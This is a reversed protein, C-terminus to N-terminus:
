NVVGGRGYKRVLRGIFTAGVKEGDHMDLTEVKVDWARAVIKAAADQVACGAIQKLDFNTSDKVLEKRLNSVTDTTSNRVKQFGLAVVHNCHFNLNTYQIGFVQYKSKNGLTIGDYIIQCFANGKSEQVM